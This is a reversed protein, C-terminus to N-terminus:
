RAGTVRSPEGMALVRSREDPHTAVNKAFRLAGLLGEDAIIRTPQLLRMPATLTRQVTFGADELLARWEQMTLPRANVKISTALSRQIDHKIEDPLGDPTLGLEHIVYRGGPRLVRHAEAIIARKGRDSQMTLMAEGFVLDASEADFGTQEARANVVTGREGVVKAVTEVAVPDSDVGRYGAPGLELIRRATLGLGPALEVVEANPIDAARVLEDTLARGGPRLVRKGLKALIWHGSMNPVPRDAEPLKAKEGHM